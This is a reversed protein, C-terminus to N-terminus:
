HKRGYQGPLCSPHDCSGQAIFGNSSKLKIVMALISFFVRSQPLFFRSSAKKIVEFILCSFKCLFSTGSRIAMCHQSMYYSDLIPQLLIICNIDTSTLYAMFSSCAYFNSIGFRLSHSLGSLKYVQLAWRLIPHIKDSDTKANAFRDM